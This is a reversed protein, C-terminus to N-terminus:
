IGKVANNWKEAAEFITKALSIPTIPTGIKTKSGVFVRQCITPPQEYDCNSCKFAIKESGFYSTKLTLEASHYCKPCSSVRLSNKIVSEFEKETLHFIGM